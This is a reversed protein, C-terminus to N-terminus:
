GEMSLVAMLLLWDFLVLLLPPPRGLWCRRLLLLTLLVPFFLLLEVVLLLPQNSPVMSAIDPISTIEPNAGRGLVGTCGRLGWLLLRPYMLAGLEGARPDAKAEMGTM